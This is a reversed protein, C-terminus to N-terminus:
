KKKAEKLKIIENFYRIGKGKYPEPKRIERINAAFQGVIQKNAGNIEIETPNKCLVCIGDPILFEVTHSFGLFLQIKDKLLVVKYGIGVLLLKKTFGETVGIIMNNILSRTTGLIASRSKLFNLNYSFTLKNNCYKIKVAKHINLFLIGNKGSIKIKNNEIFNFEVGNPIIIPNKAIRSM